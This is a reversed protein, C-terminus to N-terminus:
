FSGLCLKPLWPRIQSASLKEFCRNLWNSPMTLSLKVVDLSKTPNTRLIIWSDANEPLAMHKAGMQENHLLMIFLHGCKAILARKILAENIFIVEAEILNKNPWYYLIHFEFSSIKILAIKKINQMLVQRKIPQPSYFAASLVGVSQVPVMLFSRCSFPNATSARERRLTQWAWLLLNNSYVFLRM